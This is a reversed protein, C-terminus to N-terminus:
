IIGVMAPDDFIFHYFSDTVKTNAVGRYLNLNFKIEFNHYVTDNGNDYEAM